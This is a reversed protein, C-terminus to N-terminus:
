DCSSSGDPTQQTSKLGPKITAIAGALVASRCLHENTAKHLAEATPMISGCQVAVVESSLLRAMAVAM